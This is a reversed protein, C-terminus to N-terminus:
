SAVALVPMPHYNEGSSLVAWSIRALKNATAVIVVNRAARGELGKMWQGLYSGESLVGEIVPQGRGGRGGKVAGHALRLRLRIPQTGNSVQAYFTQLFHSPVRRNPTKRNLTSFIVASKIM